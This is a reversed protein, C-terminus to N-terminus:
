GEIHRGESVKSGLPYTYAAANSPAKLPPATDTSAASRTKRKHTLRRVWWCGLDFIWGWYVQAVWWVCGCLDLNLGWYPNTQTQCCKIIDDPWDSFSWFYKEEYATQPSENLNM